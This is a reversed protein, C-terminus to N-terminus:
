IVNREILICVDTVMVVFGQRQVTLPTKRKLHTLIHEAGQKFVSRKARLRSLEYELTDISLEVREKQLAIKVLMDAGMIEEGQIENVIGSFSLDMEDDEPFYVEGLDFTKVKGVISAIHMRVNDCDFESNLKSKKMAQLYKDADKCERLIEEKLDKM